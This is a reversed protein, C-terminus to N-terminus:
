LFALLVTIFLNVASILIDALWGGANASVKELSHANSVMSGFGVYITTATVVYSLLVKSFTRYM